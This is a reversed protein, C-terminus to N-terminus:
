FTLLIYNSSIHCVSWARNWQLIFDENNARESKILDVSEKSHNENLVAFSLAEIAFIDASDVAM